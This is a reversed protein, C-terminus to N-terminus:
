KGAGSAAAVLDLLAAGVLDGGEEKGAEELMGLLDGFAARTATGERAETLISRVNM